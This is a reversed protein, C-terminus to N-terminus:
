YAFRPDANAREPLTEAGSLHQGLNKPLNTAWLITFSVIRPGLDLCKGFITDGELGAEPIIGQPLHKQIEFVSKPVCKKQLLLSSYPVPFVQRSCGLLIRM